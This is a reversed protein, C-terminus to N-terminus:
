PHQHAAILRAAAADWLSFQGCEVARDLREGSLAVFIRGAQHIFGIPLGHLFLESETATLPIVTPQITEIHGDAAETRVDIKIPQKISSYVTM